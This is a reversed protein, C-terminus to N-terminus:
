QVTLRKTTVNGNISIICYYIGPILRESHIVIKHRGQLQSTGGKEIISSFDEALGNTIKIDIVSNKALYYELYSSGNTPNPYLSVTIYEGYDNSSEGNPSNKPLLKVNTKSSRIGNAKIGGNTNNNVQKNAYPTDCGLSDLVFYIRNLLDTDNNAIMENIDDQSVDCDYYITDVAVSDNFINSTDIPIGGSERPCQKAAYLFSNYQSINPQLAPFSEFNPLMTISTATYNGGWQPALNFWSDDFPGWAGQILNGQTGLTITKEDLSNYPFVIPNTIVVDDTCPNRKYIRIYDILTQGFYNTPNDPYSQLQIGVMVHSSANADMYPGDQVYFGAFTFPWPADSFPNSLDNTFRLRPIEKVFQDDYYFRIM